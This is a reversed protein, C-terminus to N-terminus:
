MSMCKGLCPPSKGVHGGTIRAEQLWAKTKNGGLSLLPATRSIIPQQLLSLTHNSALDYFHPKWLEVMLGCLPGHPVSHDGALSWGEPCGHSHVMKPCISWGWGLRQVVTAGAEAGSLSSWPWGLWAAGWIRVQLIWTLHYININLNLQWTQHKSSTRGCAIYM